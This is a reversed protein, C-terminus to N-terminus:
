DCEEGRDQSQVHAAGGRLILGIGLIAAVTVASAAYFALDKRREKRDREREAEACTEGCHLEGFPIPDGCYRCHSHEPLRVIAM